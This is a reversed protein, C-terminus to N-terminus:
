RTGLHAHLDILNPQKQQQTGCGYFSLTEHGACCWLSGYIDQSLMGIEDRWVASFLGLVRPRFERSYRLLTKAKFSITTIRFGISIFHFSGSQYM